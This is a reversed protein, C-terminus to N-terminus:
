EYERKVDEPKNLTKRRNEDDGAKHKRMNKLIDREEIKKNRL